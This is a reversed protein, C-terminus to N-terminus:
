YANMKERYYTLYKFHNNHRCIIFNNFHEDAEELTKFPQHDREYGQVLDWLMILQGIFDYIGKYKYQSRWEDLEYFVDFRAQANGYNIWLRVFEEEETCIHRKGFARLTDLLDVKGM